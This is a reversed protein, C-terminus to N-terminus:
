EQAHEHEHESAVDHVIEVAYSLALTVLFCGDGNRQWTALLLLLRKVVLLLLLHTGWYAMAMGPFKDGSPVDREGLCAWCLM